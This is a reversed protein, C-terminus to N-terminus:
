IPLLKSQINSITTLIRQFTIVNVTENGNMYMNEMDFVIDQLEAIIVTYESINFQGQANTLLSMTDKVLNSLISNIYIGLSSESCKTYNFYKQLNLPIISFINDIIPQKLAYLRGINHLLMYMSDNKTIQSAVLVNFHNSEYKNSNFKIDILNFKEKAESFTYPRFYLLEGQELRGAPYEPASLYRSQYEKQNYVYIQNSDINSFQIKYWDLGLIISQLQTNTITTSDLNYLALIWLAGDKVHLVVVDDTSPSIDLSLITGVHSSLDITQYLTSSYKNSISLVNGNLGTRANKGIKIYAPNNPNDTNFMSGFTHHFNGFTNQRMQGFIYDHTTTKILSIRDIFPMNGCNDYNSSDYINIFDNNVVFFRSDDYDNHIHYNYDPTTTYKPHLDNTSIVTLATPMKFSGSILYDVKGTSCFYKFDENSNVFFTGVTIKDLFSWATSTTFPEIHTYNQKGLMSETSSSIGYYLNSNKEFNYITPNGINLGKFVQINNTDIATAMENIGQNNLIDLVNSYYPTIKPLHKYTADNEVLKSFFDGIFTTKYSLELSDGDLYKGTYPISQSINFFGTYDQNNLTFATGNTYKHYSM